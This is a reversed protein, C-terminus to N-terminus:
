KKQYAFILIDQFQRRRIPRDFNSEIQYGFKAKELLILIQSFVDKEKDIHHHYEIVMQKIYRLKNEKILEELIHQEAGEVDMKLFDIERNIFKSLRVAEVIKKDKPLRQQVTSMNLAGPQEKDYFLAIEGDTDCVAKKLIEVSKLKNLESNSKLCLFAEEDPEFAIIDANPYIIKFYLVSLGINSGCDIIFPNTKETKFYYAGKIFIENFIYIFNNYTCYKVQYNDLRVSKNKSDYQKLFIRLFYIKRLYNKFNNDISLQNIQGMATFLRIVANIISGIM